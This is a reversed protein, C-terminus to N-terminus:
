GEGMGFVEHRSNQRNLDLAMIAIDHNQGAADRVHDRLLAEPHFGMDEFVALAAGQDPTLRVFVKEVGQQQAALVCDQALLRGLGGGRLAPSTLVRIEAVHPSWSFEDRVIATCGHVLGDVEAILSRIQGGAIQELWADIVKPNRIDRQLFLLDHLPLSDAFRRVAPGDGAAMWRITVPKRAITATRPWPLQNDNM